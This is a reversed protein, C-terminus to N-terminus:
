ITLHVYACLLFDKDDNVNEEIYNSVQLSIVKQIINDIDEKFESMIQQLKADKQMLVLVSAVTNVRTLCNRTHQTGNDNELSFSSETIASGMTKLVYGMLQHCRDFLFFCPLLYYIPSLQNSTISQEEGDEPIRQVADMLYESLCPGLTIISQDSLRTPKSDVTVLMRLLSCSNDLSPKLMIQDVVVKEIIQLVLSSNGIQEMYSCFVTTMSKLTKCRAEGELGAVSLVKDLYNIILFIYSQLHFANTFTFSILDFMPDITKISLRLGKWNKRGSSVKFRLVLTIFVSLYDAINIHGDKYASQLIEITRFLVYPDLDPSLCCGAISKLFPLDLHSFYYLCCLSLEQSERPLRVFPGYCINEGQCTSYFDQLSNQMSDYVCVLASNLLARQGIRLQLRVSALSSAPHKDGLQILLMPLEEIWACLAEQLDVNGPNNTEPSLMSQIPTLMDEIASLCALKLLSGPKSGKFTQTFAWLLRSTWDSAGRSIFKPIFPLLQVLHKEWVAKGSKAATGFKGLLANELFELFKELLFPPLCIWENLEFFIKAMVMNLDLLRDYDKQPLGDQHFPFLPFLKKLFASSVSVDWVPVNAGGQSSTCELKNDLGYVFSRVILDISQLISSMCGFSKGELNDRANFLAIFEQFSNVLVLVIDKLKMIIHSFGTSSMSTDAEFAHLVRQGIDDKNQLDTEEINWPLLSLCRVLGALADKLKEKDQLHYQNKRLIDEYNQFIKEAYSSFSPPYFELTLDLFDFATIRIDVALHTMANFIYAMM